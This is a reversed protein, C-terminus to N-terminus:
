NLFDPHGSIVEDAYLIAVLPDETPIAAAALAVNNVARGFVAMNITLGSPVDSLFISGRGVQMAVSSVDTEVRSQTYVGFPTDAIDTVVKKTRIYAMPVLLLQISSDSVNIIREYEVEAAEENLNIKLAGISVDADGTSIMLKVIGPSVDIYNRDTRHTDFAFMNTDMTKGSIAERNDSRGIFVVDPPTGVLSVKDVDGKRIYIGPTVVSWKEKIQEYTLEYKRAVSSKKTVPPADVGSDAMGALKTFKTKIMKILALLFDSFMKIM